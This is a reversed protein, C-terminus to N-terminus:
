KPNNPPCRMGNSMVRRAAIAQKNKASQSKKRLHVVPSAM